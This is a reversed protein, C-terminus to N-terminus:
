WRGIVEHEEQKRNADREIKNSSDKKMHLLFSGPKYHIKGCPADADEKEAKARQFFGKTKPKRM